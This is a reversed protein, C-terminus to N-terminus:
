ESDMSALACAVNELATKAVRLRAQTSIIRDHIKRLLDGELLTDASPIDLQAAIKLLGRRMIDNCTREVGIQIQLPVQNIPALPTSAEPAPASAAINELDLVFLKHTTDDVVGVNADPWVDWWAEITEIDRSAERTPVLPRKGMPEVPLVLWHFKEAYFLAAEKLPMTNPDNDAM